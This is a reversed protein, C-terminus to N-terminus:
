GATSHPPVTETRAALAALHHRAYEFGGELLEATHRFDRADDYERLPPRLLHISAGRSTPLQCVRDSYAQAAIRASRDAVSAGKMIERSFWSCDLAFITTAGQKLITPIPLYELVGGDVYLEGAISYPPFVGPIATSAMVAPVIEGSDFVVRKGDSLRVAVVTFPIQADEFAASGIHLRLFREWADAAHIYGSRSLNMLMRVRGGPFIDQTRLALWIAELRDLRHPHLGFWGANVAGASTGAMADPRVGAETLARLMGAQSAGRSGGGSFAFGVVEESRRFRRFM